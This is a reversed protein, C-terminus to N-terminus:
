KGNTLGRKWRGYHVLNCTIVWEGRDIHRVWGKHELRRLARCITSVERDLIQAIQSTRTSEHARLMLILAVEAEVGKPLEQGLLQERSMCRIIAWEKYPAYKRVPYVNLHTVEEGHDTYLTVKRKPM